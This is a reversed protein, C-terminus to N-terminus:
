INFLCFRSVYPNILDHNILFIFNLVWHNIYVISIIIIAIVSMKASFLYSHSGKIQFIKTDKHLNLIVIFNQVMLEFKIIKFFLKLIRKTCRTIYLMPEFIESGSNSSLGFGWEFLLLSIRFKIDSVSCLDSDRIHLVPKIFYSFCICYM